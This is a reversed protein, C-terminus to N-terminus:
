RGLQKSIDGRNSVDSLVARYGANAGAEAAQKLMAALQADGVGSGNIYFNQVPAFVGVGSGGGSKSSNIKDMTQQRSTVIAPGQVLEPGYEGVIGSKGSPIYGGNDFLGAIAQGAVTAVAAYGLTRIAASAVPGAVPGLELAKTAGQETSVIMSPIAMAKQAAFMAKYIFNSEAGAEKLFGLITGMSDSMYSAMNAVEQMSLERQQQQFKQSLAAMLDLRQKETLETNELILKRKKEFDEILLEEETMLDMRIQEVKALAKDHRETEERAYMEESKKMLEAQLDSGAETNELIIRNREVYAQEIAETESFMLQKVRKFEAERKKTAAEAAAAAKKAAAEAKKDTGSTNAGDGGQVKFGALDDRLKMDDRKKQLDKRRQEYADSEAKIAKKVEEVEGWIQSSNITTEMDIALKRTTREGELLDQDEFPNLYRVVMEGALKAHQVWNDVTNIMELIYARIQAPLASWDHVIGNTTEGSSNTIDDSALGFADMVMDLTVDVDAAWGRWAIKEKEWDAGLGDAELYDTMEQIKSTVWDIATAASDAFTGDSMTYKFLEWTDSLNAIAGDLTNMQREMAGGFNNKGLDILYREIDAASNAVETKIGRFTFVITDGQNKAKIGFEKLREFEGTAADAVAEIMQDLSKSMSAATDGYSTLAEKSPTLGYNVLKIFSSTVQEIGYPTDMAYQMLSDWAVNMGEISGTSTVLSARLKEFRRNVDTLAMTADMAGKISIFAAGAKFVTDTLGKISTDTDSAARRTRDMDRRVDDAGSSRFRILLDALSSISM